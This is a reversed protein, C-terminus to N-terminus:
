NPCQAQNSTDGCTRMTKWSLEPLPLHRTIPSQEANNTSPPPLVRIEESSNSNSGSSNQSTHSFARAQNSTGKPTKLCNGCSNFHLCYGSPSPNNPMTPLHCRRQLRKLFPSTQNIHIKPPTLSSEHKNPHTKAPERAIKPLISTSAIAQHHPITQCQQHIATAGCDSGFHRHKISKYKPLHSFLSTSSQIHRRLNELSKRLFQLPPLLRITFSRKTNDTSPLPAEIVELIAINSRHTNQSAHPFARAQNSTDERTRSHNGCSNFHLCYGSPSPDNPTIPPHCRRQLQKWFPSTQNIYIPPTLSSKRKNPHTKM